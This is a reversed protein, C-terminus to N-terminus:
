FSGAIEGQNRTSLNRFLNRDVTEKIPAVRGDCFLFNVTGPHNSRFGMCAGFNNSRIGGGVSRGGPSIKLNLPVESSSITGNPNPWTFWDCSEFLSEGVALTTSTGDLVHHILTTGGTRSMIGTHSGGAGLRQQRTAPPSRFPWTEPYHIYNDGLNGQYSLKPGSNAATGDPNVGVGSDRRPTSSFMPSPDSPCIFTGIPLMLATHNMRGYLNGPGGIVGVSFNIANSIPTGELHPLIMSCWSHRNVGDPRGGPPNPTNRWISTPFSGLSDHYAHLAIGIQKLNNACHLKRAAERASQVAPLLLGILAGIIAIVVLLEILTFGAPKREIPSCPRMARWRMMIGRRM